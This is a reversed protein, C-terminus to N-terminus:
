KPSSSYEKYFCLFLIKKKSVNQRANSRHVCKLYKGLGKKMIGTVWLWGCIEEVEDYPPHTPLGRADGARGLL